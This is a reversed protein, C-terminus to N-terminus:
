SWSQGAAMPRRKWEPSFPVITGARMVWSVEGLVDIDDLPDRDVLILDAAKGPEVTGTENQLGLAIAGNRTGAQIAEMNSFGYTTLEKIELHLIAFPQEPFVNDTGAAVTVGRQRIIKLTEPYREIVRTAWNLTANFEERDMPYEGGTSGTKNLKECLEKIYRYVWSTPILCIGKKAMIDATEEDIFNGHEITDVGAEAAMRTGVFNGAHIAVRKGLRHAEMTGATIEEQSLEPYDTRHSTLFKILDADAKVEERVAKRMSEISDVEHMVGPMQSGHGGTMCIGIGAVLLRPGLLQGEKIASRLALDLHGEDSVARITTIGAQLASRLNNVGLVTTYALRDGKVPHTMYGPHVLHVHSDILGPLLYKGSADLTQVDAPVTVGGRKGVGIIRDGEVLVVSDKVPKRGTGDILTAGSILLTTKSTNSM